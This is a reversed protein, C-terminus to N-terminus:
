CTEEWKTLRIGYSRRSFILIASLASSTLLRPFLSFRGALPRISRHAGNSFTKEGYQCSRACSKYNDTFSICGFFRFNSFSTGHSQNTCFIILVHAQLRGIDNGGLHGQVGLAHQAKCCAGGGDAGVAMQNLPILLALQIEPLRDGDVQVFVAAQGPVMGLAVAAEHPLIQEVM